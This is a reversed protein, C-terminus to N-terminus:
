KDEVASSLPCQGPICFDELENNYGDGNGEEKSDKFPCKECCLPGNTWKNKEPKWGDPMEIIWKM